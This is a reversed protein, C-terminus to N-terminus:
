TAVRYYGHARLGTFSSDITLGARIVTTGGTAETSICVTTTNLSGTRSVLAGSPQALGSEAQVHINANNGAINAVTFPLGGIYMTGTPSGSWATISVTATFNVINGIRTYLGVQETYTPTGPTGDTTITPTFTGEEYQDLVNADASLTGDLKIGGNFTPAVPFVVPGALELTGTNAQIRKNAM